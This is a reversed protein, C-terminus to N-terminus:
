AVSVAAGAMDFVRATAAPSMNDTYDKKDYAIEDTGVNRMRKRIEAHGGTLQLLTTYATSEKTVTSSEM